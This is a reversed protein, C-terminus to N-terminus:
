TGIEFFVTEDAGQMRIDLRYVPGQPTDERRAVLTHRRGEPVLALVPDAANAAAEDSFYVRTYCPNLTGRMFVILTLHPAQRGDVSGPKVTEFSWMQRPDAGTGTRGFGTFDSNAPRGDAPHAHRGTADAQWLELMADDVPQGGADLVQGCVRIREGAVTPGAPAADAVQSGAYGYQRATLGYAFYPGVTQSPTQPLRM